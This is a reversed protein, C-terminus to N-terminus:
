IHNIIPKNFILFSARLLSLKYGFYLVIILFMYYFLIVLLVCIRLKCHYSYVYLFSLLHLQIDM